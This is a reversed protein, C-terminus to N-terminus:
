LFRPYGSVLYTVVGSVLMALALGVMGAGITSAAHRGRARRMLRVAAWAGALWVLVVLPFIWKATCWPCHPGVAHHINCAHSGTLDCGCGFFLNCVPLAIIVAVLMTVAVAYREVFRM